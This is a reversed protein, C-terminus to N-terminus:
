ILELKYTSFRDNICNGVTLKYELPSIDELKIITTAFITIFRPSDNKNNSFLIFQRDRKNWICKRKIITYEKPVSNHESSSFTYKSYIKKLKQLDLDNMILELDNM